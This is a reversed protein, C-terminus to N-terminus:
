SSIFMLLKTVSHSCLTFLSNSQSYILRNECPDFLTLLKSFTSFNKFVFCKM